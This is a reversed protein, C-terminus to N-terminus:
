SKSLIKNIKSQLVSPTFPKVIYGNAGSQAAEVVNEKETEATVLLVPLDKMTDDARIAKLLDIGTMNPMHWDTVVFDYNGKKLRELAAAGDEAVDINKFDLQKFINRIIRRMTAIDDVVLVRMNKDTMLNVEKENSVKHPALALSQEPMHLKKDDFTAKCRV